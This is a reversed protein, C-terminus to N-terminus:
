LSSHHAEKSVLMEMKKLTEEHRPSFIPAKKKERRSDIVMPSPQTPARLECLEHQTRTIPRRTTIHRRGWKKLLLLVFSAAKELIVPIRGPYKRKFKEGNANCKKIVNLMALLTLITLM